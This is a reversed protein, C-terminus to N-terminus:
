GGLAAQTVAQELRGRTRCTQRSLDGSILRTDIEVFRADAQVQVGGPAPTLRVTLDTSSVDPRHMAELTCVADAQLASPPGMRTAVLLEGMGEPRREVAFDAHDLWGSVREVAAALTVPLVPTQPAGLPPRLRPPSPPAQVAPSADPPYTPAPAGGLRLEAFAHHSPDPPSACAALAACLLAAGVARLRRSDFESKISVRRVKGYRRGSM